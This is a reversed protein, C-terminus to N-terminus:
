QNEVNAKIVRLAKQAFLVHFPKFLVWWAKEMVGPNEAILDLSLITFNERGNLTYGTGCKFFLSRLNFWYKSPKEYEALRFPGMSEGNKVMLEGGRNKISVAECAGRLGDVLLLRLFFFPKIEMLNHVPFKNPMTEILDFVKERSANIRIQRKDQIM